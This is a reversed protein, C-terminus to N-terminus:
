RFLEEQQIKEAYKALVHSDGWKDAYEGTMILQRVISELEEVRQQLERIDDVSLDSAEIGDSM